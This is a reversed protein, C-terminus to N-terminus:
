AHFDKPRGLSLLIVLLTHVRVAWGGEGLVFAILHRVSM